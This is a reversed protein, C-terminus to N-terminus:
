QFSKLSEQYQKEEQALRHLQDLLYRTASDIALCRSQGIGEVTEPYRDCSLRALWIGDEQEYWSVLWRVKGYETRMRCAKRHDMQDLVEATHITKPRPRAAENTQKTPEPTM